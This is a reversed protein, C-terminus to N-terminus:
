QGLHFVTLGSLWQKLVEQKVGNRCTIGSSNCAIFRIWPTLLMAWALPSVAVRSSALRWALLCFALRVHALVARRLGCRQASFAVSAGVMWRERGASPSIVPALRSNLQRSTIQEWTFSLFFWEVQTVAVEDAMWIWQVASILCTAKDTKWFKKKRKEWFM